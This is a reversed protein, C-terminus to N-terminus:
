LSLPTCRISLLAREVVTLSVKLCENYEVEVKVNGPEKELGQWLGHVATGQKGQGGPRVRTPRCSCCPNEM